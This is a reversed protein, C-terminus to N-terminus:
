RLVEALVAADHVWWRAGDQAAAIQPDSPVRDVVPRTLRDLRQDCVIRGTVAVCLVPPSLRKRSLDLPRRASGRRLQVDCVPCRDDRTRNLTLTAFAIYTWTDPDIVEVNLSANRGTVAAWVDLGCRAGPHASVPTLQITRRISCWVGPDLM